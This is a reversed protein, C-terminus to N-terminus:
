LLVMQLQRSSPMFRKKVAQANEAAIRLDENLRQLELTSQELVRETVTLQQNKQMLIRMWYRTAALAIGTLIIIAGAISLALTEPTLVNSQKAVHAEPTFVAAAMGTYHMGCVAFGM